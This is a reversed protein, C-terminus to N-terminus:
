SGADASLSVSSANAASRRGHLLRGIYGAQRAWLLLGAAAAHPPRMILRVSLCVSPRVGALLAAVLKAAEHVSARHSRGTQRLSNVSLTAAAIQVWASSRRLGSALWEAVSGGVRNTSPLLYVIQHFKSM